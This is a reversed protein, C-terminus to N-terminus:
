SLSCECIEKGPKNQASTVKQQCKNRCMRKHLELKPRGRYRTQIPINRNLIKIVYGM